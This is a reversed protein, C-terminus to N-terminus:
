IRYRIGQIVPVLDTPIKGTRFCVHFLIRLCSIATENIFDEDPIADVDSAKNKKAMNVANQVELLSIINEFLPEVNDDNPHPEDLDSDSFFENSDYLQGFCIEWKRLDDEADYSVSGHDLVVEMPINKKSGIGVKGISKWFENYYHNGETLIDSQIKVM